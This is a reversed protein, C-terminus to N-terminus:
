HTFTCKCKECLQQRQTCKLVGFVSFLPYVQVCPDRPVCRAALVKDTEGKKKGFKFEIVSIGETTTAQIVTTVSPSTRVIHFHRPEFFAVICRGVLETTADERLTGLWVLQAASLVCNEQLVRESSKEFLFSVFSNLFSM